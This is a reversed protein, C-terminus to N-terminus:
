NLSCDLIINSGYVNKVVKKTMCQASAREIVKKQKNNTKEGQQKDNAQQLSLKSFLVVLYLILMNCVYVCVCVNFARQLIDHKGYELRLEFSISEKSASM